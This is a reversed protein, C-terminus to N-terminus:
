RSCTGRRRSNRFRHFVWCGPLVRVEPGPSQPQSGTGDPQRIGAAVNKAIPPYRGPVHASEPPIFRRVPPRHGEANLGRCRPSPYCNGQSRNLSYLFFAPFVIRHGVGPGGTVIAGIVCDAVSRCYSDVRRCRASVCCQSSDGGGYRDPGRNGVCRVCFM